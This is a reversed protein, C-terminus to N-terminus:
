FLVLRSSFEFQLLVAEHCQKRALPFPFASFLLSGVSTDFVGLSLALM